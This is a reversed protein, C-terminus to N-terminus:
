GNLKNKQEVYITNNLKKLARMFDKENLITLQYKAIEKLKIFRENKDVNEKIM